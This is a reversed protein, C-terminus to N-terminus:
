KELEEIEKELKRSLRDFIRGILLMMVIGFLVGIAAVSISILLGFGLSKSIFFLGVGPSVIAGIVSVIMGYAVFYPNNWLKRLLRNM